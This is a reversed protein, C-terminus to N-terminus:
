STKWLGQVTTHCAGYIAALDQLCVGAQRLREHVQAADGQWAAFVVGAAVSADGSWDNAVLQQLANVLGTATADDADALNILLTGTADLDEPDAKWESVAVVGAVARPIRRPCCLVCM